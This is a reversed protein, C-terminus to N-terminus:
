PEVPGGEAGAANVANVAVEHTTGAKLRIAAHDSNQPAMVELSAARSGTGSPVSAGVQHAGPPARARHDGDWAGACDVPAADIADRKSM